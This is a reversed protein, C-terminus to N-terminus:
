RDPDPEFADQQVRELLAPPLASGDLPHGNFRSIPRCGILANTLFAGDARLLDAPRLRTERVPIGLAPAQCLVRQRVTGSVGAQHLRPTLLTGERFLFLNTMTGGILNGHVDCMLGEAIDPDTWEAQAMVQELRNLHKVGALAPNAGLRTACLRVAVEPRSWRPSPDATPYLLLIRSPKPRLPPRYGRAGTGRTLILKVTATRAVGTLRRVEDRWLGEAPMPIGLREAGASLRTMHELWLCPGGCRIAITEFLGDGYALGRDQIDISGAPTGNILAAAPPLPGLTEAM